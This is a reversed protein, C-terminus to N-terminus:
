LEEYQKNFGRHQIYKKQKENYPWFYWVGDLRQYIQKKDSIFSIICVMGNSNQYMGLVNTNFYSNDLSELNNKISIFKQGIIKEFKSSIYLSLDDYEVLHDALLQNKRFILTPFEESESVQGCNIFHLLFLIHLIFRM